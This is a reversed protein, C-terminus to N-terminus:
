KLYAGTFYFRQWDYISMNNNKWNQLEKWTATLYLNVNREHKVVKVATYVGERQSIKECSDGAPIKDM